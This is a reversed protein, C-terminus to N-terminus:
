YGRVGGGYQASNKTIICHSLVAAAHYRRIGGGSYGAGNGRVICRELTLLTAQSWDAEIGGGGELATNDSIM